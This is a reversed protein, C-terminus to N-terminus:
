NLKNMKLAILKQTNEFFQFGVAITIATFQIILENSLAAVMLAVLNVGIIIATLLNTSGNKALYALQLTIPLLLQYEYYPAAMFFPIYSLTTIWVLYDAKASSNALWLAVGIFVVLLLYTSLQNQTWGFNFYVMAPISLNASRFQAPISLAEAYKSNPFNGPELAGYNGLQIEAWHQATQFWEVHQNFTLAITTGVLFAVIVSKKSFPVLVPAFYPKVLLLLYSPLGNKYRIVLACLLLILTYFQGREVHMKFIGTFPLSLLLIWCIIELLTSPKKVLLPLAIFYAILSIFLWTIKVSEYSLYTLPVLLVSQLPTGTYRSVPFNKGAFPDSHIATSDTQPVYPSHSTLVAQYSGVLKDILDTNRYSSIEFSYFLCTAICAFLVIYKSWQAIFKVYFQKM